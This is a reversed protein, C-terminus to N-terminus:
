SALRSQSVTREAGFQGVGATADVTLTVDGAADSDVRVNLNLEATPTPSRTM